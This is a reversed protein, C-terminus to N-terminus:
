ATAPANSASGAVSRAASRLRSESRAARPDTWTEFVINTFTVRAQAAPNGGELRPQLYGGVYAPSLIGWLGHPPDESPNGEDFTLPGSSYQTNNYTLKYEVTAPSGASLGNPLYIM